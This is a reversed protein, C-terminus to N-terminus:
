RSTVVYSGPGSLLLVARKGGDASVSTMKRGNVMLTVTPRQVPVSVTAKVRPPLHLTTVYGDEDRIAVRLVGHPTPEAGRAWKLGLLDPRIDVRAFGGATPRIGLIQSMLWPTIGSSWGHALSVDFGSIGDAQLSAQFLFGKFWTPNYSEWFSTAGERVMGGWYQRIWRLAARRHGMKAMASVVYFGYYPTIVYSRYKAKGVHSLVRRWIAPYQDKSAVGSLVAYANPQWRNGFTGHANLMYKRAAAKLAKAERAMRRANKEDHLVRLLYAGDRFAAYYEFQTAMRTQATYGSLGPAWDVFPWAHTLDSFLSRRNLDKEMYRLLQVLRTHVGQLQTLSGTHLYYEREGMVWFASYGPIGNVHRTVPAPGILRDLTDRMLFGDGFVDAITRGSVDLDGMWRNRDRKPADWIDDQMCLHATYAGITWMKNLMPDSSDFAGEYRVPYAIGDLRIGRFRTSRGGIFRLVAYRFASKPGYATGHPPLYVPDAGLYPQLLAEAESEGYQVTVEAAASSDSQLEIRGAVERGFDLEVQPADHAPVHGHPLTVTFEGGRRNGTLAQVNGITGVGAYVRRVAMAKLSYQALFPSIGQYGPWAYMGADANAQFLGISSEIGGLDDVKPWASDNFRPDQWGRPVHGVTGKWRADSMVLPTAQIGRAAPVIMAALVKGDRLHRSVASEAENGALPGRVAEIALVNRGAHLVRTVDCQYVRIGMPFDLNLQFHGIERGNLYITARRPGAVYLTAHAPVAAVEFVRRLYHPGLGYATVEHVSTWIYQEPLPRHLARQLQAPGLDRAPDLEPDALTTPGNPPQRLQVHAPALPVKALAADIKALAADTLRTPDFPQVATLTLHRGKDAVRAASFGPVYRDLIARTRPNAILEGITSHAVSYRPAPAVSVAGAARAPVSLQVLCALVLSAAVLPTLRSFASTKM